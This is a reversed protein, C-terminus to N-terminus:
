PLPAPTRNSSHKKEWQGNPDIAVLDYLEDIKLGDIVFEGAINTEIQRVLTATAPHWVQVIARTPTGAVTIQGAFFGNGKFARKYTFLRIGRKPKLKAKSTHTVAM